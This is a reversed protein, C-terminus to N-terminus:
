KLSICAMTLFLFSVFGSLQHTIPLDHAFLDIYLGFLVTETVLPFLHRAAYKYEVISLNANWINNRSFGISRSLVPRDSRFRFTSSGCMGVM